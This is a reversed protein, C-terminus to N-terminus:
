YSVVSLVRQVLVPLLSLATNFYNCMPVPVRKQSFSAM